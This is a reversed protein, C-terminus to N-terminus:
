SATQGGRDTPWGDAHSVHRGPGCRGASGQSTSQAVDLQQVDTPRPAIDEVPGPRWRLELQKVPGLEAQHVGTVPDVSVSGLASPLQIGPAGFPVEIQLHACAAPLVGFRLSREGPEERTAPRLVLELQHLGVSPPPLVVGTRQANWNLEVPQGDLRAELLEIGGSKGDWPFEFRALSQLMELQYLATMTTLDLLSRQQRWNFAARYTARTVLWNRHSGQSERARRHLADYFELPLYDYQGVPALDADVPVVLQYTTDARAAPIARHSHIPGCFM